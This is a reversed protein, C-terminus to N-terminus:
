RNNPCGSRRACRPLREGRAGNLAMGLALSISLPAIVVNDGPAAASLERLLDFGFRNSAGSLESEAVTLPRQLGELPPLPEAASEGCAGLLTFAPAVFCLTTAAANHQISM